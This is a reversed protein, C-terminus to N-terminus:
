SCDSCCSFGGCCGVWLWQSLLLMLLLLPLVLPLSASCINIAAVPPAAAVVSGKFLGAKPSNGKKCCCCCICNGRGTTSLGGVGVPAPSAHPSMAPVCAVAAACPMQDSRHTSPKSKQPCAGKQLPLTHTQLKQAQSPSAPATTQKTHPRSFPHTHRDHSYTMAPVTTAAPTHRLSVHTTAPGRDSGNEAHQTDNGQVAPLSLTCIQRSRISQPSAPM